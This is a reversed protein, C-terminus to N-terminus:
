IMNPPKPTPSKEFTSDRECLLLRTLSPPRPRTPGRTGLTVMPFFLTREESPRSYIQSRPGHLLSQPLSGSLPFRRSSLNERGQSTKNQYPLTRLSSSPISISSILPSTFTTSFSHM